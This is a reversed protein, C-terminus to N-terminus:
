RMRARELWELWKERDLPTSRGSPTVAYLSFESRDRAFEVAEAFTSFEHRTRPRFSLAFFYEAGDFVSAEWNTFLQTFDHPDGGRSATLPQQKSAIM